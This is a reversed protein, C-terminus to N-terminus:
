LRYSNNQEQNRLITVFLDVHKLDPNRSKNTLTKILKHLLPLLTNNKKSMTNQSGLDQGPCM